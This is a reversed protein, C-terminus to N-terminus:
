RFINHSNISPCELLPRPKGVTNTVIELFEEFGIEGSGDKDVGAIMAEVQARNSAFGLSLLPDELEDVSIEGGARECYTM